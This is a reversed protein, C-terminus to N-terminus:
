VALKERVRLIPGVKGYYHLKMGSDLRCCLRGSFLAVVAVWMAFIKSDGRGGRGGGMSVFHFVGLFKLHAPRRHKQRKMKTM